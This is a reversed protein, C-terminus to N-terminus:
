APPTRVEICQGGLTDQVMGVIRWQFGPHSYNEMHYELWIPADLLNELLIEEPINKERYTEFARDIMGVIVLMRFLDAKEAEPFEDLIEQDTLTHATCKEVMLDYFEEQKNKRLTACLSALAEVCFEPLRALRANNVLREIDM